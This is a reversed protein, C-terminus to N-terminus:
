YDLGGSKLTRGLFYAKGICKIQRKFGEPQFVPKTNLQTHFTLGNDALLHVCLDDLQESQAVTLQEKWDGVTGLYVAENQRSPVVDPKLYKTCCNVIVSCIDTYMRHPSSYIQYDFLNRPVDKWNMFSVCANLSEQLSKDPQSACNIVPM